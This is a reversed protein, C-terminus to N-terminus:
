SSLRQQRSTGGEGICICICTHLLLTLAQHRKKMTYLWQQTGRRIATYMNTMWEQSIHFVQHKLVHLAITSTPQSSSPFGAAVILLPAFTLVPVM